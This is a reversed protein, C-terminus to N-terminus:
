IYKSHQYLIFHKSFHDICVKWRLVKKALWNIVTLTSNKLFGIYKILAIFKQRAATSRKFFFFNENQIEHCKSRIVYILIREILHTASATQRRYCRYDIKDDDTLDIM